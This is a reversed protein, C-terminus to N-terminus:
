ERVEIEYYDEGTNVLKSHGCVKHGQYKPNDRVLGVVVGESIHGDYNGLKIKDGINRKKPSFIIIKM